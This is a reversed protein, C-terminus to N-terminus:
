RVGTEHGLERLRDLWNNFVLMLRIDKECDPCYADGLMASGKIYANLHKCKDENDNVGENDENSM